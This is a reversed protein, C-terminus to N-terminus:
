HVTLDEELDEGGSERLWDTEKELGGVRRTGSRGEVFGAGVGAVGAEGDELDSHAWEWVAVQDDAM